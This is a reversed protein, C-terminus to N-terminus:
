DDDRRYEEALIAYMVKDCIGQNNRDAQRHIGEYKMGCKAMVKGSNANRPDFCSEVRNAGIQEFFFEIVAALAESMYGKHWWKKGLCYGIHVLDIEYCTEVVSIAGISQDIDRSIIVWHYCEENYGNIVYDIYDRAGEVNEYATWRLYKTVESDNMWNSYSYDVDEKRFRRLILRETEIEVTGLHKM